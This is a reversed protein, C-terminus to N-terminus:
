RLLTRGQYNQSQGGADPPPPPSPPPPAPSAKAAPAQKPNAKPVVLNQAPPPPVVIVPYNSMFQGDAPAFPASGLAIGVGFALVQPKLKRM